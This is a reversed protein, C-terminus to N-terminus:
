GLDDTAGAAQHAANPPSQPKTEDAIQEVVKALHDKVDRERIRLVRYGADQLWTERTMQKAALALSDREDRDLDIALRSAHHAFDVVYPGIPAQRSIGLKLKRLETWLLGEAASPRKRLRKARAVVAPAPRGPATRANM